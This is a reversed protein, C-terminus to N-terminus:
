RAPAKTGSDAHRFMPQNRDGRSLLYAVLDLIEDQHLTNFLGEPMM